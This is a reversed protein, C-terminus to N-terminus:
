VPRPAFAALDGSKRPMKDAEAANLIAVVRETGLAKM